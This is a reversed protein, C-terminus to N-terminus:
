TLRGKDRVPWDLVNERVSRREEDGAVGTTDFTVRRYAGVRKRDLTNRSVAVGKEVRLVAAEEELRARPESVVQQFDPGKSESVFECVIILDSIFPDDISEKASGYDNLRKKFSRLMMTEKSTRDDVLYQMWLANTNPFFILIHGNDYRREWCDETVEKMKRNMEKGKPGEFLIPDLSLDLFSVDEGTNIRSLTFDTISAVVGHTKVHMKKGDIIFELTKCNYWHLDRHEFEFEAEAVALGITVQLLLSQAEKFSLLVLSKLDKGVDSLWKIFITLNSFAIKKYYLTFLNNNNADQDKIFELPHDNQSIHTKDGDKWARIMEDDYAGVCVNHVHNDHGRLQNM